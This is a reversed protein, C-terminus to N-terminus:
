GGEIANNMDIIIEGEFYAATKAKVVMRFFSLPVYTSGDVIVPAAQLEIPAMKAYSYADMGITLSIHAGITVSKTAADWEVEYGLAEAIARLPVMVMNDASVFANPADIIDENVRIPAGALTKEFPEAVEPLPMIDEFMVVVSIPTTQAPFSRTSAGYRVILKRGALSGDYPTGDELIVVTNDSITIVLQGDYSLLNDDFRDYKVTTEGDEVAVVEANYQPPYIMLMPKTIDFYGTITDGVQIEAGDVVYTDESIVITAPNEGDMVSVHLMSYEAYDVAIVSIVKGTFTLYREAPAAGTAPMIGLGLPNDIVPQEGDTYLGFAPMGCLVLALVLTFATVRKIKRM